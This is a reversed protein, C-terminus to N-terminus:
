SLNTLISGVIGLLFGAAVITIVMALLLKGYRREEREADGPDPDRGGPIYPASLGRLRAARDRDDDSPAILRPEADTPAGDTPPRDDTAGPRRPDNTDTM